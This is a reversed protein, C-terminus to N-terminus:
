IKGQLFASRGHLAVSTDESAKRVPMRRESSARDSESDLAADGRPEVAAIDGPEGQDSGLQGTTNCECGSYGVVEQSVDHRLGCSKCM